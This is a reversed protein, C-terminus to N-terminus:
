RSRFEASDDVQTLLAGVVGVALGVGMVAYNAGTYEPDCGGDAYCTEGYPIAGLGAVGAGLIATVWGAIRTSNRDHYVVSIEDPVLPGGGAFSGAVWGRHRYRVALQTTNDFPIECPLVCFEDISMGEATATNGYSDRAHVRTTALIEGVRMPHSTTTVVTREPQPPQQPQAQRPRAREPEPEAQDVSGFEAVDAWQFVREEGRHNLMTVSEGDIVEVITGRFMSGDTTEIFDPVSQASAPAILFTLAAFAAVITAVYRVTM